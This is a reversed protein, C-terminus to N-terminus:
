KIILLHLAPDNWFREVTPYEDRLRAEITRTSYNGLRIWILKPPSGRMLSM